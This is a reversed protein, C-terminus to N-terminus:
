LPPHVPYVVVDVAGAHTGLSPDPGGALSRHLKLLHQRQLCPAPAGCIADVDEERAHVCKHEALGRSARPPAGAQAEM